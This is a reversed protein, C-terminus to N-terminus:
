NLTDVPAVSSKAPPVCVIWPFEGDVDPAPSYSTLPLPVSVTLVFMVTGFRVTVPAPTSSPGAVSVIVPANPQDPPVTSPGPVVVTVLVPEIAILPVPISMRLLLWTSFTAPVAFQDPVVWNRIPELATNFLEPVNLM